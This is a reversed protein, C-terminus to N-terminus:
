RAALIHARARGAYRKGHLWAVDKGLTIVPVFRAYGRADLPRDSRDDLAYFHDDIRVLLLTDAGRSHDRGVSLYLDRSAFGAAKLAQMKLIAIDESDGTRRDLTEGAQAWYDSIHYSDLDSRFAIRRGVAQHVFALKAIPDLGATAAAIQRVRPDALDAASVRRWRAGYVTVGADLAVTGFVDPSRPTAPPTPRATVIVTQNPASASAPFALAPAAGLALGFLAVFRLIM